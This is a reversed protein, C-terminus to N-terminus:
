APTKRFWSRRPKEPSSPGEYYRGYRYRYGNGYGYDYGFGRDGRSDFRNLVGGVLPAGVGLLMERARQVAVQDTQRAAVVLAAADCQTSLLVADTALLVPATDIIIADFHQKMMELLARMRKSGLLEAPNPVQRGAPLVFFGDFGIDYRAFDPTENSLLLDSLGPKRPLGLLAHGRPRRLDADVYLTRRGTRAVTLALNVATTTKGEEPMASTVLMTELVTDPRSFQLSTHVGRYCEAIPSMPSLLAVLTTSVRRGEVEVTEMGGFEAKIVREFRPVVGLVELGHRRLDEPRYLRHDLAQRVFALGFGFLIGVLMGLLVNLQKQPREPEDPTQARRVIEVYGLESEEAVRAEQAREGLLLYLQEVAQRDRQLQALQISKRPLDRLRTEYQSVRGNLTELKARLGRILINKEVIKRKLEAVYSLGQGGMAVDAVGLNLMESVYERSLRNLEGQFQEIKSQIDALEPVSAENGRLSPNNAYFEAAEARLAALRQQLSSFQDEVGSAIRAALGPEIRDLEAVLAELSAEELRLDVRTQEIEADLEASRRVLLSGETDLAVAGEREMFQELRTEASDLASRYRREQARLFERSATISARNSEQSRKSYEEAYLNAILAAETAIPSTATVQVMSVRDAVPEFRVRKGLLLRAVGAVPRAEGEPTYLVPLPEGSAPDTAAAAL